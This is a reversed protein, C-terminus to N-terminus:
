RLGGIVREKDPKSGAKDCVKFHKYFMIKIWGDTVASNIHVILSM